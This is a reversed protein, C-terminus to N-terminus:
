GTCVRLSAVISHHPEKVAFGAKNDEFEAKPAARLETFLKGDKRALITGTRLEAPEPAADAEAGEVESEEREEREEENLDEEDEEEEEDDDDDDEEEEEEYATSWLVHKCCAACFTAHRSRAHGAVPGSAERNQKSQVVETWNSM